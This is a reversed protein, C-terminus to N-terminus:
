TNREESTEYIPRFIANTRELVDQVLTKTDANAEIRYVMNETRLYINELELRRIYPLMEPMTCAVPQRQDKGFHGRAEDTDTFVEGCQFCKWPGQHQSEAGM